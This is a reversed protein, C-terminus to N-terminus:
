VRRRSRRGRYGLSPRGVKAAVMRSISDANGAIVPYVPVVLSITGQLVDGGNWKFLRGVRNSTVSRVKYRGNYDFGDDSVTNKIKVYGNVTPTIDAAATYTGDAAISTLAIEPQTLDSGRFRWGGLATLYALLFTRFLPEPKFEGLTVMDDPIARLRMSRVNTVDVGNVRLLLAMQPIDSAWNGGGAGGPYNVSVTNGPGSPDVRQRRLGSIYARLPLMRARIRALAKFANLDADTATPRYVSESFGGKLNLDGPNGSGSLYNFIMTYKYAAVDSGGM